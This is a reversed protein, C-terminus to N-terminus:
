RKPAVRMQQLGREVRQQRIREARERAAEPSGGQVRYPAFEDPSPGVVFDTRVSSELQRTALEGQFRFQAAAASRQDAQLRHIEMQLRQQQLADGGLSPSTLFPNTSLSQNFPQGLVQAQAGGAATAFLLALALTRM